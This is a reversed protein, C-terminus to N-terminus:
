KKAAMYSLPQLVFRRQVDRGKFEHVRGNRKRAQTVVM